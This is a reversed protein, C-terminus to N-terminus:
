WKRVKQRLKVIDVRADLNEDWVTKFWSALKVKLPRKDQAQEEVAETLWRSISVICM